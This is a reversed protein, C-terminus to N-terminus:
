SKNNTEELTKKIVKKEKALILIIPPISTLYQPSTDGMEGPNAARFAVIDLRKFIQNAYYNM